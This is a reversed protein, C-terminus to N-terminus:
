GNAAPPAEPRPYLGDGKKVKWGATQLMPLQAYQVSASTGPGGLQTWLSESKHPMFASLAVAQRALSRALAGLVTDLEASKAPDKALAWPQAVQIFGNARVTVRAIAALAEHCLYGRSGDLASIATSLDAADEADLPSTRGEPVVGARYKEIMAIVRSALNGLGNALESTYVAEFREISYDGDSDFPVERM